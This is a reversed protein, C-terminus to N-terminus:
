KMKGILKEFRKSDESSSSYIQPDLAFLSIKGASDGVTIRKGDETWCIKNLAENGLKCRIKPAEIDKNLDFIDLFGNGDGTALISANTPSWKSCYVYNNSSEITFLPGGTKQKSWIKTTWDASSTAFLHSFNCTNFYDSPHFDVSYVPGEHGTFTNLVVNRTNNENLSVQYINNDDSGILLNFKNKIKYYYFKVWNYNNWKELLNKLDKQTKM